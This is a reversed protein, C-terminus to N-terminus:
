LSEWNARRKPEDVGVEVMGLILRANNANLSLVVIKAEKLRGERSAGCREGVVM